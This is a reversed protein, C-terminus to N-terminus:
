PFYSGDERDSKGVCLDLVVDGPSVAWKKLALNGWSGRLM